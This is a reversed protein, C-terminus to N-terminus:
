NLSEFGIRQNSVLLWVFRVAELEICVFFCMPMNFELMWMNFELMWLDASLPNHNRHM